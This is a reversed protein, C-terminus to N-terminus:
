TNFQKEKRSVWRGPLPELPEFLKFRKFQKGTAKKPSENGERSRPLPPIAMRSVGRGRM